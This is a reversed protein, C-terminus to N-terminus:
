LEPKPTTTCSSTAGWCTSDEWVLSRVDTGQMSLCIRMWQTVLSTGNGCKRREEGDAM